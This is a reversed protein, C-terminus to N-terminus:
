LITDTITSPVQTRLLSFGRIQPHSVHVIWVLCAAYPQEFGPDHRHFFLGNRGDM